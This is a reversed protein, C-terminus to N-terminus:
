LKEGSLDTINYYSHDPFRELEIYVHESVLLRDLLSVLEGFTPRQKPDKDWCYFMINYMERRCHEPKELRYGDRIRRIVENASLGPYPTSGLTVIEWLLVGFSWVDTKTTYINDFLSEPAMWRIPLRGESKREYVHSAIIDRAFGFDAVKCVKNEDVLINRAALDRHIIGKNALYDMGKAVQYSFTTLDRSSLNKSSGHLNGYLREARSERLYTQLKGRSVFEMIVLIPDKDSCCGLLTVVNPHPELLKMVELESLLDKKEKETANEKLTKVAVTATEQRPGIDQALCKWVQGFCGEGLIGIFQLRHRQFEWKDLDSGVRHLVNGTSNSSGIFPPTAPRLLAAPSYSFAVTESLSGERRAVGSSAKKLAVLKENRNCHRWLLYMSLLVLPGILTVAVIPLVTTAIFAGQSGQAQESGEGPPVDRVPPQDGLSPIFSPSSSTTASTNGEKAPPHRFPRSASSSPHAPHPASPVFPPFPRLRPRTTSFPLKLPLDSTAGHAELVRIYVEIKAMQHGDNATVYLYFDNGGLGTFSKKLYVEGTDKNIQFYDSGDVYKAPEIGYEIPDNDEDRTRVTTIRTGIDWDEKIEWERKFDFVPPTNHGTFATAHLICHYVFILLHLHRCIKSSM